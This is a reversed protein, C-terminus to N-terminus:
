MMKLVSLAYRRIFDRENEVFIKSAAEGPLVSRDQRTGQSLGEGGTFFAWPVPSSHVSSGWGICVACFLAGPLFYQTKLPSADRW